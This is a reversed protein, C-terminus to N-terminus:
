IKRFLDVITEGEEIKWIEIHIKRKHLIALFKGDPSFEIKLKPSGPFPIEFPIQDEKNDATQVDKVQKLM